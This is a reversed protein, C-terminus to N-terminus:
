LLRTVTSHLVSLTAAKTVNNDPYQNHLTIYVIHFFCLINSIRYHTLLWCCGLLSSIPPPETSHDSLSHCEISTSAHVSTKPLFTQIKLIHCDSQSLWLVTLINNSLISIGWSFDVHLRVVAALPITRWARTQQQIVKSTYNPRKWACESIQPSHYLKVYCSLALLCAQFPKNVPETGAARHIRIIFQFLKKLIAPRCFMFRMWCAQYSCVTQQQPSHKPM